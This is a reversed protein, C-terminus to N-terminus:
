RALLILMALTGSLLLGILGNSLGRRALYLVLVVPLSGYAFMRLARTAFLLYGDTTLSPFIM